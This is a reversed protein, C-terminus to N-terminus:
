SGGNIGWSGNRNFIEYSKTIHCKNKENLAKTYANSVEIFNIKDRLMLEVLAFNIEEKSYSFLESLLEFIDNKM